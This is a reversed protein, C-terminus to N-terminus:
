LLIAGEHQLLWEKRWLGGGYGIMKGSSGIIRHCPVVISVPNKGNASGVARIKNRDGLKIAIDLYSATTGFPVTLLAAWVQQQFPTGAAALPLQFQRLEGTFYAELQECCERIAPTEAVDIETKERFGLQCIRSDKEGILISGIPSEFWGYNTM